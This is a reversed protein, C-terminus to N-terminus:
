PPGCRSFTDDAGLILLCIPALVIGLGVSTAALGLGAAIYVIGVPISAVLLGWQVGTSMKYFMRSGTVKVLINGPYTINEEPNVPEASVVTAPKTPEEVKPLSNACGM